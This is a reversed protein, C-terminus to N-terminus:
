LVAFRNNSKLFPQHSHNAQSKLSGRAFFSRNAINLDSIDSKAWTMWLLLAVTLLKSVNNKLFSGFHSESLFILSDCKREKAWLFLTFRVKAWLFAHIASESKRECFRAIQEFFLHAFEWCQYSQEHQSYVTCYLLYLSIIVVVVKDNYYFLFIIIMSSDNKAKKQCCGTSNSFSGRWNLFFSKQGMYMCYQLVFCICM